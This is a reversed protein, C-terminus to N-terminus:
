HGERYWVLGLFALLAAIVALLSFLPLQRLAITRSVGNRRLALWGNGAMRRNGALLRIAPLAATNLQNRWLRFVGGGVAATWPKVIKATSRVDSWERLDTAGVAAVTSVKGNKLRYLGTQRAAFRARWVGDKVKQLVIEQKKGDPSTIEVKGITDAMSRREIVFGDNFPQALLREEELDPEKMLWHALRRLLEAHPGGGDYGRAWLWAHDSLLMAVRGKGERRLMLLPKNEAGTMLEDGSSAEIDILRFWKGWKTKEDAAGPLEATVPHRLGKKTVKARYPAATVAGTPVGPLIAALPTRYLSFPSAFAPGAATLVAGGNRVYDAVNSLYVLPLVGRRRYRDFIILDFQHLKEAFLERTPFAILSLEMIPTGDQKEPPRLITFHVLDVAADAKLLNRWTREGQHPEGSVLLVRLRDRIGQVAILVRNNRTTLENVGAAALLEVVNLGAHELKLKLKRIEGSTVQLKRLNKGDLKVTVEIPRSPTGPPRDDDVRFSLEMDEGVIGFKPAHLVTLRRDREGPRGTVLAHVPRGQGLNLKERADHVQGDTIIIAGAYRDPPIDRLVQKLAPTLRTGRSGAHRKVTVWRTELNARRDLTKKLAARAAAIQGPRPKLGQSPSEDVVVVAIDSLPQSERAEIVPNIIALLLVALAALRWLAKAGRQYLSLGALLLAVIGFGGILWPDFLPAFTLSWNM